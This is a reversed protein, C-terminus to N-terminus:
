VVKLLTIDFIGVLAGPEFHPPAPRFEVTVSAREEPALARRIQDPENLPEGAFYM